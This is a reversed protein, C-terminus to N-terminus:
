VCKIDCEIRRKESELLNCSSVRQIRGGAGSLEHTHRLQPAENGPVYPPFLRVRIQAGSCVGEGHKTEAQVSSFCFIYTLLYLYM